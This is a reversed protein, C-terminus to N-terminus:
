PTEDLTRLVIREAEAWTAASEAGPVTTRAVGFHIRVPVIGDLTVLVDARDDIFHTLGLRKAIPAKEPRTRCFHVASEAIGTEEHFRRAALWARTRAQIRPGCKSVLAVHGGAATVRAVLRAVTAQAGDVEPARLAAADDGGLFSSDPGDGAILVRGVDIGLAPPHFNTTTNMAVVIARRLMM